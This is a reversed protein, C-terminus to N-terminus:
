KINVIIRDNGHEETNKEKKEKLMILTVREGIVRIATDITIFSENVFTSIITIKKEDKEKDKFARLSNDSLDSVKKNWITSLM